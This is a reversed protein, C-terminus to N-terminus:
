KKKWKDSFVAELLAATRENEEQSLARKPLPIIKEKTMCLIYFDDTEYLAYLSEYGVNYPHAEEEYPSRVDITCEPKQLTIEYHLNAAASQAAAKNIGALPVWVVAVGAVLCVAGVFFNGVWFFDACLLLFVAAFIATKWLKKRKWVERLSRKIDEESLAFSIVIPEM